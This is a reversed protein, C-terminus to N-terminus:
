CVMMVTLCCQVIEVGGLYLMEVKDLVRKCTSNSSRGPMM